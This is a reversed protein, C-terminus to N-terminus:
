RSNQDTPEAKGASVAAESLGVGTYRRAGHLARAFGVTKATARISLIVSLRSTIGRYPNGVGRVNIVRLGFMLPPDLSKPLRGPKQKQPHSAPSACISLLAEAGNAVRSVYIQM